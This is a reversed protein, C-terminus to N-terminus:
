LGGRGPRGLRLDRAGTVSSDCLAFQMFESMFLCKRRRLGGTEVPKEVSQTSGRRPRSCGRPMSRVSSRPLPSSLLGFLSLGRRVATWGCEDASLLMGHGVANENELADGLAAGLDQAGLAPGHVHLLRQRRGLEDLEHRGVVGNEDAAAALHVGLHDVGGPVELDDPPRPDPDVVHVERRGRAPADEDHVRGAAVRDGGRLEGDGEHEGEGAVESGGVQGHLSLLPVPLGEGPHLEEPLAEPHDPEAPDPALHRRPAPGEAHLDLGEVREHRGRQGLLGVHLQPGELLHQLGGVVQGEVRGEGLLRLVEEALVRERPHLGADATTLAARPSSM